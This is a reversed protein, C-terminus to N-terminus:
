LTNKGNTCWLAIYRPVDLFLKNLTQMMM